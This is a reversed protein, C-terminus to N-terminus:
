VIERGSTLRRISNRYGKWTRESLRIMQEALYGIRVPSGMDLVFIGGEDEVISAQLILQCAESVMMFYRTIDPHTVTLPGGARIQERFLPVVSGDSGLM